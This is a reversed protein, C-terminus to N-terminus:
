ETGVPAEEGQAAFPTDIVEAQYGQEGLWRAMPGTYGHTVWVREAETAKIAKLLGPWDAHDSLVFGRDLARRRRAGRLQM